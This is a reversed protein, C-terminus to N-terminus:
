ARGSRRFDGHHRGGIFKEIRGEYRAVIDSACGFVRAMIQRTDEPDLREALSTYGSLDSFLM